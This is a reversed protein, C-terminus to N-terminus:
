LFILLMKIFLDCVVWIMLTVLIADNVRSPLRKVVNRGLFNATILIPLFILTWKVVDPPAIQGNGLRVLGATAFVIFNLLNGTGRMESIKLGEATLYSVRMGGGSLGTGQLFSSAFATVTGVFRSTASENKEQKQTLFRRLTKYLFHVSFGLLVGTVFWNPLNLLLVAGAVVGVLSAPLLKRVYDQRIDARFIFAGIATNLMLVWTSIAIAYQADGTLALILPTTTSSGSMPVIINAFSLFALTVYIVWHQVMESVYSEM